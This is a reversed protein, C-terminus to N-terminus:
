YDLKIRITAEREYNKLLPKSLKAVALLERQENYLGVTSIYVQPDGIMTAHRLRGADGTTFTENTSFNYESNKARVFYFTSSIDEDARGTFNVLSNYVKKPIEDNANASDGLDSVSLATGLSLGSTVPISNGIMREGDLMIVGLEPYVKGWYVYDSGSQYLTPGTSSGSIVNYVIHGNETTSAAVSSDDCVTHKIIGSGSFQIHWDGKDIQEKFRSRELTIFVANNVTTNDALKFKTTPTPSDLLLNRFQSYIARSPHYGTTAGTPGKSGSGAYHGYSIQFQVAATDSTSSDDPNEHYVDYYYSEGAASATQASSTFFSTLSGTGNSFLGTTVNRSVNGKVIDGTEFRTFTSM